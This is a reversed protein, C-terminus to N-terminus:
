NNFNTNLRQARFQQIQEPTLQVGSNRGFGRGGGRGGQGPTFQGPTFQPVAQMPQGPQQAGPQQPQTSLPAASRDLPTINITDSKSLMYPKKGINLTVMDSTVSQVQAGNVSSITDGVKVFNGESTKKNELLAITQDGMVITGTYTWEAFPNIEPVKIPVPKIEPKAAVKPPAKVVVVTPAPPQPANFLSNSVSQTYFDVPRRGNDDPDDSSKQPEVNPSTDEAPAAQAPATPLRRSTNTQPKATIHATTCNAPLNQASDSRAVGILLGCTVAALTWVLHRSFLSTRGLMGLPIPEPFKFSPSSRAFLPLDSAQRRNSNTKDGTQQTRATM